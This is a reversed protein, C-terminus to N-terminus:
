PALKPLQPCQYRVVGPIWSPPRNTEGLVYFGDKVEANILGYFLMLDRENPWNALFTVYLCM